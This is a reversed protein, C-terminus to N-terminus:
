VLPKNVKNADRQIIIVARTHARLIFYATLLRHYTRLCAYRIYPRGGRRCWTILQPNGFVNSSHADHQRESWVSYGLCSGRADLFPSLKGCCNPKPSFIASRRRRAPSVCSSSPERSPTLACATDFHSLFTEQGSIISSGSSARVSPTVSSSRNEGGM